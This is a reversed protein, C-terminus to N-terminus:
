FRLRLASSPGDSFRRRILDDFVVISLIERVAAMRDNWATAAAGDAERDALLAKAVGYIEPIYNAWFEVYLELRELASGAAQYRRLRDSLARVEDVYHTTALAVRRRRSLQARSKCHLYVAQRTIAQLRPLIM